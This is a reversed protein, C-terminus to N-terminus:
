LMKWEINVQLFVAHFKLYKTIFDFFLYWIESLLLKLFLNAGNHTTCQTTLLLPLSHGDGSYAAMCLMQPDREWEPLFTVDTWKSSLALLLFSHSCKKCNLVSKLTSITQRLRCIDIQLFKKTIQVRFISADVKKHLSVTFRFSAWRLLELFVSTAYGNITVHAVM